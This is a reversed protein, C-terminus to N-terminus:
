KPLLDTRASFPRTRRRLHRPWRASPVPGRLPALRQSAAPATARGHTACRPRHVRASAATVAPL